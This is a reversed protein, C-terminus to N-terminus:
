IKRFENMREKDNKRKTKYRDLNEKKREKKGKIERIKYGELNRENKTM